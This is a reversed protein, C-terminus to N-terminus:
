KAVWGTNGTGSEKVYLSTAAGGDSRQFTSGVSATVVGEPTGAGFFVGSGGNLSIALASNGKINITGAGKDLGTPISGVLLGGRVEFARTLTGALMVFVQYAGIEAADTPSVIQSRTIAYEKITATSNRGSFAQKGIVDDVAPSASDRFLSFDPGSSAGDAFSTIQNDEFLVASNSLDEIKTTTNDFIPYIIKANTTNLSIRVAAGGMRNFYDGLSLIDESTGLINLGINTNAATDPFHYQNGISKLEIVDTAQVFSANTGIMYFLNGTLRIYKWKDIKIGINIGNIHSNAVTMSPEQGASSVSICTNCEVVKSGTNM